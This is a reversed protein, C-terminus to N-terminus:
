EVQAVQVPVGTALRILNSTIVTDGDAVGETIRISARGRAGTKVETWQALGKKILFVSYGKPGPILAQTPIVIGDRIKKMSFLITASTGPILKGNKNDSVALVQLSRTHIDTAPETATIKGTYEIPSTETTFRISQGPHVDAAYKESVTFNIKVKSIDQLSALPSAPTVYGGVDVKNLGVKGSFPARIETKALQVDLEEIETQLVLLQTSVQDYEEKNVSESAILEKFRSEQLLALKEQLKLKKRKALLDADDLKFLLRGKPVISGEAAHIKTVKRSIEAVLQVEQLARVTGTTHLEDELINKNVIYVDTLVKQPDAIANPAPTKPADEQSKGDMKQWIFVILFLGVIAGASLWGIKNGKKM